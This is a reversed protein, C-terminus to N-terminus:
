IRCECAGVPGPDRCFRECGGGVLAAMSAFHHPDRFPRTQILRGERLQGAASHIMTVDLAERPSLPPPLGPLWAALISKGAGPPGVLLLNRQGAAAIELLRCAIEQGELDSMNPAQHAASVLEPAPLTLIQFDRVHNFLAMLDPAAVIGLDNAWVAEPGCERPCILDTGASVAAMAAPLVGSLTEIGGHLSLEGLVFAENVADAWM